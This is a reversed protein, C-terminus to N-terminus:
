ATRFSAQSQIESIHFYTKGSFSGLLYYERLMSKQIYVQSPKAKMEDALAIVIVQASTWLGWVFAPLQYVFVYTSYLINEM